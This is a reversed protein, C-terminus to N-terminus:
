VIVVGGARRIEDVLPALSRLVTEPRGLVVFYRRHGDRFRFVLGTQSRANTYRPKRFPLRRVEGDTPRTRAAEISEVESLAVDLVVQKRLRSEREEIVMRGATVRFTLDGIEQRFM